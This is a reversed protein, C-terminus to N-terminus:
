HEKSSLLKDVISALKAIERCYDDLLAELTATAGSQGKKLQWVRGVAVTEVQYKRNIQELLAEAGDSPAEGALWVMGRCAALVSSLSGALLTEINEKKEATQIFGRRLNVLISKLERECQYRLNTKEIRADTLPDMGYLLIHRARMDSFEIPFTDLSTEIHEREFVLPTALGKKSFKKVSEMVITLDVVRANQLVILTNIDSKGEIYEIAAASGFLIVSLLNDGFSEVLRDTFEIVSGKAKQPLHALKEITEPKM